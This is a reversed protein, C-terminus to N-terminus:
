KTVMGKQVLWDRVYPLLHKPNLDYCGEAYCTLDVALEFAHLGACYGDAEFQGGEYACDLNEYVTRRLRRRELIVVVIWWIGMAILTPPLFVFILMATPDIYSM